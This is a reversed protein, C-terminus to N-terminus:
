PTPEQLQELTPEEPQEQLQEQPQELTPEQPQELTPEEPQEQPQEPTPEQAQEQPQEPTPEQAQEPTPQGPQEPTPQRTPKPKDRTKGALADQLHRAGLEVARRTTEGDVGYPGGHTLLAAGDGIRLAAVDLTLTGEEGAVEGTAGGTAGGGVTMRLGQFADGIGSLRVTEVRVDYAQGTVGTVTFQQCKQALQRVHGIRADVDDKRYVGVQYRMQAGYATDDFGAVATAGSPEGLLDEAYVADLLEQCEPRDARGKLLGDRWTAAGQTTGWGPGLEDARLLAGKLRAGTLAPAVPHAPAASTRRTVQYSEPVSEEGGNLWAAAVGLAGATLMLTLVRYPRHM